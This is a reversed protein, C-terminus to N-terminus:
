LWGWTKQLSDKIYSSPWGFRDTANSLVRLLTDQEARNNFLDGVLAIAMCAPLYTPSAKGMGAAIACVIKSDNKMEVEIQKMKRGRALGIKPLRPDHSMLLMRSLHYYQLGAAVPESYLWIEPLVQKEADNCTYIPDFSDPKTESWITIDKLLAKYHEIDTNDSFCYRIIDTLQLLMLNAWDKDDVTTLKRKTCPSDLYPPFSAQNVIALYAELRLNVWWAAEPPNEREFFDTPEGIM